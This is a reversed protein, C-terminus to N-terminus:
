EFCHKKLYAREEILKATRSKIIFIATIVFLIIFIWFATIFDFGIMAFWLLALVTCLITGVIGRKVLSQNKKIEEELNQINRFKCGCNSCMWYNRHTNSFQMTSVSNKKSFSHNLSTGSTIDTEVVPSISTSNCEPCHLQKSNAPKRQQRPTDTSQLSYGCDSCFHVGEALEKGCNPCFSM